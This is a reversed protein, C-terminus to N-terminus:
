LNLKLDKKIEKPIKKIKEKVEKPKIECINELGHAIAMSLDKKCKITVRDPWISYSLHAWDYEGKELKKWCDETSKKWKSHRFLKYLPAATILVGDDHNPKYPLSTIDLLEKKMTELEHELDELAKVDKIAKNDNMSNNSMNRRNDVVEDIKPQLYNNIISLLTQNNLKAYYVWVIFNGNSSSLPWYIPAERRSKTYRKFHFDFFGNPNSIFEEISKLQGIECIENAITNSNSSWIKDIVQTLSNSISHSNSNDDILIGDLPIAIPYNDPIKGLTVKPSFPLEEFIEGPEPLLDPNLISRIDWRGFAVGLLNSIIEFSINQNNEITDDTVGDISILNELPRKAKYEQIKQIELNSENIMKLWFVDNQNLLKYYLEKDLKNKLKVESLSKKISESKSFLSLLHNFDLCTEDLSFWYRKISIIENITSNIENVNVNKIPIPLLNVYGAQKHQGCFLNIIYQCYVSNLFSLAIKSNDISIGTISFGEVAFVSKDKVVHSDLIDGRKGYGTGFKLQYDNNRLAISKHSSVLIANEGYLTLERYPIYFMSFPGGNYLHRFNNSKLIEYYNRFHWDSVLSHGQRVQFGANSLSPLKRFLEIVYDEWNYGIISNPLSNFSQSNKIYVKKSDINEIINKVSELLVIDKNQEEAIDIFVGLNTNNGKKLILSTTEVNADLVNWGTDAMATIHGCFCKIRFPEYSSKIAVTRDFIAGVLGEINILELCREFFAALINKGWTPYNIQLYSATNISADGFPPNMVIVDYKKRCLEIFAFGRATDEAFLLKQYAKDDNTNEALTKLIELVKEEANDLFDEKYKKSAYLAAKEAVMLQEDTAGLSTQSHKSEQQLNKAIEQIKNDIENEIRLLLGAEGALKMLEWIDLVLKRMPADLPKVLESLFDANVPMPEALVLNSKTIQPRDTPVLGLKDFSKQARLWLSLAAIQLARPDIDVGHINYRIIFEPIQKIFDARTMSNKLDVLLEKHNDWAEIYIVELIDFAYLGFHMSGCAPDLLLIERPDKIKRYVIYNFKIDSNEPKTEKSDLFIENKRKILYPCFEKLKTNGKNMEYWIKGLSNDTLFQVVYRPTFFQNRVALERSNRPAGSADRMIKIEEKSNYYQYIWGITEDQQWLNVNPLGDERHIELDEKNIFSLLDQLTKESPFIIAYPSFKDFVSPLDISLEDFIAYLYWKYRTYINTTAGQGTISDYVQFGESTYANKITERIIGREEAMRLAALRNLITFAQERILQEISEANENKRDALNNALYKLRDRLLKANYLIDADSTTLEEIAIVEGTQPFIGYYQQLQNRIEQFLIKKFDQVLKLLKKRSNATLAM